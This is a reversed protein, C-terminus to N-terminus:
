LCLSNLLDWTFCYFCFIDFNTVCMNIMELFVTIDDCIFDCFFM